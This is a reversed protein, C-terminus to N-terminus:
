EEDEAASPASKTATTKKWCDEQCLLGEAQEATVEITQNKKVVLRLDPVEVEEYPGVFKVYM